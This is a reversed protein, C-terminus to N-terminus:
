VSAEKLKKKLDDIVLDKEKPSKMYSSKKFDSDQRAEALDDKLQANSIKLSHVANKYKEYRAKYVQSAQDLKNRQRRIEKSKEELVSIKMRSLELAKELEGKALPDGRGSPGKGKGGM